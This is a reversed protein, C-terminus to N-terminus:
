FFWEATEWLTLCLAVRHGLYKVELYFCSSMYGCLSNDMFTMVANNLIVLYQSLQYIQWITFLYVLPIINMCHFWALCPFPIVSTYVVRIPRLIMAIGFFGSPFSYHIIGNIHFELFVCLVSFRYSRFTSWYNAVTPLPLVTVPVLFSEMHQFHKIDQNQHHNSPYICQDFHM